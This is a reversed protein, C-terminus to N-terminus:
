EVGLYPRVDGIIYFGYLYPHNLNFAWDTLVRAGNQLNFAVTVIEITAVPGNTWHAEAENIYRWMAGETAQLSRELHEVSRHLLDIPHVQEMNTHYDYYIERTELQTPTDGEPAVAMARLSRLVPVHVVTHDPFNDHRRAHDEVVVAATSRSVPPSALDIHVDRVPIPQSDNIAMSTIPMQELARRWSSTDIQQYAIRDGGRSLEDSRHVSPHNVPLWQRAADALTTVDVLDVEQEQRQERLAQEMQYRAYDEPTIEATPM